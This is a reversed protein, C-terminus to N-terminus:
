FTHWVNQHDVRTRNTANFIPRFQHGTQKLRRLISLDSGDGKELLAHNTWRFGDASPPANEPIPVCM